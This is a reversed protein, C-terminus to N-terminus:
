LKKNKACSEKLSDNFKIMFAEINDDDDNDDDNEDHSSYNSFIKNDGIVMFAMPIM